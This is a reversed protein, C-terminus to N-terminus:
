VYNYRNFARRCERQIKQKLDKFEQWHPPLNTSKACNYCTQKHRRLRKINHTIWSVTPRSRKMRFPVFM